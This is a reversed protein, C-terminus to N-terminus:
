PTEQDDNREQSVRTALAEWMQMQRADSLELFLALREAGTEIGAAARFAEFLEFTDIAEM